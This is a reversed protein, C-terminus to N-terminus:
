PAGGMAQGLAESVTRCYGAYDASTRFREDRPYPAPIAIDAFVRGPRPTMVVIRQSLYVSEFVSHTVFIVTRRLAQWLTLLDNNLKFRTIEDLAAFPEDMLLLQPETVLARAISARMKMGGSLERPFTKAFETLGVRDLAQRVAARSEANDAAGLRLPLLVNAAVDAWPM